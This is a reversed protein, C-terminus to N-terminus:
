VTDHTYFKIQEQRIYEQGQSELESEELLCVFYHLNLTRKPLTSQMSHFFQYQEDLHSQVLPADVLLIESKACLIQAVRIKTLRKQQIQKSFIQLVSKINEMRPQCMTKADFGSFFGSGEGINILVHVAALYPNEKFIPVFYPSVLKDFDMVFKSYEPNLALLGLDSCLWCRIEEMTFGLEKYRLISLGLEYASLNFFKPETVYTDRLFQPEFDLNILFEWAESSTINQDMFIDQNVSEKVVKSFKRPQHKYCSFYRSNLNSRRTCNGGLKSCFQLKM